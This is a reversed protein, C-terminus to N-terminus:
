QLAHTFQEISIGVHWFGKLLSFVACKKQLLNIFVLVYGHSSDPLPRSLPVNVQMIHSVPM